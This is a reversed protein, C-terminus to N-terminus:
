KFLEKIKGNNYVNEGTKKYFETFTEISGLIQPYDYKEALGWVWKNDSQFRPECMLYIVKTGEEGIYIDGYVPEEYRDIQGNIWSASHSLIGELDHHGFAYDLQENTMTLLKNMMKRTEDNTM